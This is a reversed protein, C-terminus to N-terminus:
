VVITQGPRTIDYSQYEKSSDLMTLRHGNSFTLALTGNVNSEFSAVTTGLLALTRAAVQSSSPEPRWIWEAMGDFYRFDAEASIAIDEDFRFSIHYLGVAVQILERGNLFRLDIEKKLGYMSHLCCIVARLEQNVRKDDM